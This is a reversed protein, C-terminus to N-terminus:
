ARLRRTKIIGWGKDKLDLMFSKLGNEDPIPQQGKGIRYLQRTYWTVELSGFNDLFKFGTTLPKVQHRTEQGSLLRQAALPEIAFIRGMGVFDLDNSQLASEIGALSRFGGTVMLPAQCVERAKKAFDLFYAERHQTSAKKTGLQMIPKEYTGGSIEIMDIGIEDLAQITALSEEETFGGRQFDASNLKIGIPFDTGVKERTAKFIELVFRRRNEATGGWQDQRRNHHPSLFQSILYGHAGHLQVGSFGAEKAILATNAYRQIIAEIEAHTLERPTAFAAAMKRNFPIASPSVTEKNLGRLAQKGPHNIQMWVDSGGSKAVTAWQRLLDIHKRDEVVVNGPEGLAQHDIMVNGTILIGAGAQAWTKFLQILENKPRGDLEGLAESLASKIIRNKIKIGNKLTFPQALNLQM